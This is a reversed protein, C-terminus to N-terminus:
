LLFERVARYRSEKLENGTCYRKKTGRTVERLLCEEASHLWEGLKRELFNKEGTYIHLKRLLM